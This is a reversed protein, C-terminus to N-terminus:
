LKSSLAIPQYVASFLHDKPQAAFHDSLNRTTVMERKIDAISQCGMLMMCTELEQQLLDLVREVGMQGYSALGYLVPRGIGIGTAGLALAKFIDTGRRIGGDM